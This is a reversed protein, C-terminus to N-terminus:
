INKRLSKHHLFCIDIHHPKIICLNKTCDNIKTVQATVESQEVTVPEVDQLSSILPPGRVQWGEEEHREVHSTPCYQEDSSIQM